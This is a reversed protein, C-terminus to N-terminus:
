IFIKIQEKKKREDKGHEHEVNKRQCRIGTGTISCKQGLTYVYWLKQQKIKKQKKKYAACMGNRDIESENKLTTTNCVANSSVCVSMILKFGFCYSECGSWYINKKAKHATHVRELRCQNLANKKENKMEIYHPATHITSPHILNFYIFSFWVLSPSLRSLFPLMFVFLSSFFCVCVCVIFPHNISVLM